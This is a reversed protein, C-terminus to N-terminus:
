PFPHVDGLSTDAPVKHAVWVVASGFCRSAAEVGVTLEGGLFPWDPNAGALAVAVRM